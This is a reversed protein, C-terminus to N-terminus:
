EYEPVEVCTMSISNNWSGHTLTYSVIGECDERMTEFVETWGATSKGCGSLIFGACLLVILKNMERVKQSICQKVTIVNILQSVTELISRYFEVRRM